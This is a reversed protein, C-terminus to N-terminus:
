DRCGAYLSRWVLTTLADLLHGVEEPSASPLLQYTGREFMWLLWRSSREPDLDAAISGDRQHEAIHRALADATEAILRQHEARIRPDYASAELVAGLLAQHRVYTEITPRLAERLADKGADAPMAWWTAGTAALEAIVDVAMGRLLDGKDEFYAYFTSRSINAAKILREVSIDSFAEGGEILEEVIAIFHRSLLTRREERTTQLPSAAPTAM